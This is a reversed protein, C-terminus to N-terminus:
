VWGADRYSKFTEDFVESLSMTARWGLDSKLKGSSCTWAPAKLQDLYKQDFMNPKGTLNAAATSAYMTARLIPWPLRILRLKKNLTRATEHWLNSTVIIDDSATFYTKHGPRTDHILADIAMVLDSVAIFSLKQEPGVPLFCLGFRAFKYLNFVNTDRPGIVAPPRFISVDIENQALLFNEANLKSKGYTDIPNAADLETLPCECTSPGTAALSSAFIMRKARRNQRMLCAHLDTVANFNNTAYDSQKTATVTGALHIVQDCEPITFNPDAFSKLDGKLLQVGAPLPLKIGNRLPPTEGGAPKQQHSSPRPSGAGVDLNRVLATVDHGERVLHECLHRGIFGTAGTIFFRM